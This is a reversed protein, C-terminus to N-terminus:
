DSKKKKVIKLLRKHWDEPWNERKIGKRYLIGKPTIPPHDLAKPEKEDTRFSSRHIPFDEEPRPVAVTDMYFCYTKNPASSNSGFLTGEPTIPPYDLAKPEKEDTRLFSRRIPWDEEPRPSVATGTDTRPSSAMDTDTRPSSAMDTDFFYTQDSASINLGFPILFLFIFYLM